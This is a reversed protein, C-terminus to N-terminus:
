SVLMNNLVPLIMYFPYEQIDTGQVTLILLLRVPSKLVM